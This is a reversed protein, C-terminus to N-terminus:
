DDWSDKLADTIADALHESIKTRLQENQVMLAAVVEKLQTKVFDLFDRNEAVYERVIHYTQQEIAANFATQLKSQPAPDYLSRKEPVTCLYTIAAAIIREREEGSIQDLIAKHLAEQLAGDSINLKIGEPSM